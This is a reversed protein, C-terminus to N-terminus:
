APETDSNSLFYARSFSWDHTYTKDSTKGTKVSRIIKQTSGIIELTGGGIYTGLVRRQEPASLTGVWTGEPDGINRMLFIKLNEIRDAKSRVKVMFSLDPRM